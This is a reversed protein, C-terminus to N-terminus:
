KSCNSHHAYVKKLIGLYRGREQDTLVSFIEQISRRKQTLIQKVVKRGYATITVSVLRRDKQDHHRELMKERILRDVLTTASSMQIGLNHAIDKMRVVRPTRLVYDLTVMQSCSIKGQTLENDERRAFEKYIVPMIEVVQRSFDKIKPHSM